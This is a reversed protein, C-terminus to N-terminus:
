HCKVIFSMDFTLAKFLHTYKVRRTANKLEIKQMRNYIKVDYRNSFQM